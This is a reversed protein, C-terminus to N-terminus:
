LKGITSMRLSRKNHSASAPTMLGARVLDYSDLDGLVPDHDVRLEDMILRLQGLYPTLVVQKDTGYGQQALYKVIKLIMKAEFINQRSTASDEDQRDKLRSESVELHEHHIFVVNKQLGLMDPRSLVNDSDELEPYMMQRVLASIQPRMRHQKTLVTHPHGGSVLREFLSCNLDFGDGREITLAYNKVKPRLQLHDGIMVLQKTERSLATLIHSELVEGAEEVLVIGPKALAIQDAYKAAATTTCAVIRKSRMLEAIRNERASTWKGYDADYERMMAALGETREIIGSQKWRALYGQREGRTMQWIDGHQPAVADEFVGADRGEAWRHFLYTSDIARGDSGAVSMDGDIEPASLAHYFREDQEDFELSELIEKESQQWRSFKLGKDVARRATTEVVSKYNQYTNRQMHSLGVRDRTQNHLAMPETRATSKSGLRLVQRQEVGMDLIDELFQDLAHNTYCIVLITTRQAHNLFLKTM